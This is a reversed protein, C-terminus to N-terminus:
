LNRRKEVANRINNESFGVLIIGEVDIVPVGGQSSKRASEEKKSRDRDLDYERLSVGLSKLYTRAKLCYPCWETMYLIVEIDQYQRKEKSPEASPGPGQRYEGRPSTEEKPASRERGKLVKVKKVDDASPPTDSFAVNGDKDKWQYIQPFAPSTLSLLFVFFLVIRLLPIM